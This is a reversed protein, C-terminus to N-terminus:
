KKKNKCCEGKGDCHGSTAEAKNPCTGGEHNKCAEATTPTATYGIKKFGAVIKEVDTQKADYKVVVTQEALSTVIEKIGKEFRLNTKIKNECNQCNMKPSVTFIATEVKKDDKAYGPLATVAMFLMAISLIAFLKKM